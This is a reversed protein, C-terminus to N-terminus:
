WRRDYRNRLIIATANVVLLVVLLVIIAAATVERFDASPQRAWNFIIVPLATYPGNPDAGLQSFNGLVAAALVLPATEGLARALSLITGTLIGPAAYPLVHSRVVEWRTAGVGFAAERITTPVARLAEAATIIVIPLVLIALTLGGAVVTRGGLGGGTWPPLLVVFAALGLLGYVISPVGALNRIVTNLFRALPTDRAYEELYIAAAIGIPFAIVIVFVMLWASGIIGQVVGSRDARSSTISTLFDPGREILVGAGRSTVDFLLTVLVGLSIVLTMLLAGEFLYGRLDFRRGSLRQAVVEGPAVPPTRTLGAM